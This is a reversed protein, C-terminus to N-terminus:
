GAFHFVLGKYHRECFIIQCVPLFQGAGPQFYDSFVSLQNVAPDRAILGMGYAFQRHSFVINEPLRFGGIPICGCLLNLEGNKIHASRLCLNLDLFYFHIVIHGLHFNTFFIKGGFLIQGPCFYLQPSCLFFPILGMQYFLPYETVLGMVNLLKGDALIDQHLLASRFAIQHGFFYRKGNLIGILYLLHLHQVVVGSQLDALLVYGGFLFQGSCFQLQPPCLFLAMLGFKHFLPYGAPFRM